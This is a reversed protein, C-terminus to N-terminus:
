KDGEKAADADGGEADGGGEAAAAAEAAAQKELELLREREAKEQEEQKKQLEKMKKELEAAQAFADFAENITLDRLKAEAVLQEDEGVKRGKRQKRALTKTDVDKCPKDAVVKCTKNLHDQAVKYYEELKAQDVGDESIKHDQYLVALNFWPRPDDKALEAAKKYTKEAADYKKVGRQAVGLAIWAEINKEVKPDKLAIQLSKEATAYDRFRISIFAINLNADSHKPELEVAKKFSKLADVQNNEEMLLLGKLNRIEASDNGEKKLVQLAQTVVLNSLLLYSKDKLRGRDYYLRALNEYAMKNSTDVALVNQIQKLATDFDKADLSDKYRDRYAAALNNRAAFAKKPDAKVAKDFWELAKKTNGRRWYMAGLNNMALQYKGDALKKYKKEAADEDGCAELLTAANFEAISMQEGFEKYLGEFKGVFKKCDSESPKGGAPVAEKYAAVVKDFEARAEASPKDVTGAGPGGDGGPTDSGEGKKKCAGLTLALLGITLFTSFKRM